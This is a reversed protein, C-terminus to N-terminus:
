LNNAQGVLFIDFPYSHLPAMNLYIAKVLNKTKEWSLKNEIHFKELIGIYDEKKDISCPSYYIYENKVEAYFDNNKIKSYDVIIGGLLKALDYYMDGYSSSPCFEHRWDILTFKKGFIINDFQLDGHINSMISEFKLLNSFIDSDICKSCNNVMFPNKLFSYKKFLKDMRDNSKTIYFDHLCSNDVIGFNSWLNDKLFILLDSFKEKSCEQYLTKGKVFNYLFGKKSPMIKCKPYVKINLNAKDVKKQAINCDEFVKFVKNGICTIEKEKSFDYKCYKKVIKKYKEKTGIDEWKINSFSMENSNLYAQFNKYLENDWSSGLDSKFRYKDSVYMLGNYIYSEGDIKHKKERYFKKSIRLYDGPSDKSIGIDIFLKKEEDFYKKLNKYIGDNPIVVFSKTLFDICEFLSRGPNKKCFDEIYIFNVKRKPRFENVIFEVDNGLHGVSVFIENSTPIQDILHIICPKNGVPLIGKNIFSSMNGIRSGVGASLICVSCNDISM